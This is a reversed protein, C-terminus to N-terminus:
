TKNIQNNNMTLSKQLSGEGDFYYLLFLVLNSDVGAEGQNRELYDGLGVVIDMMEEEYHMVVVVSNTVVIKEIEEAMKMLIMVRVVVMIEMVNKQFDGQHELSKWVHQLVKEGEVKVVQYYLPLVQLFFYTM